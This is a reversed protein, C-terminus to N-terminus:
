LWPSDSWGADRRGKMQSQGRQEGRVRLRHVDVLGEVVDDAVLALGACGAAAAAGTALALGRGALVVVGGSRSSSGRGSSGAGGRETVHVDAVLDDDATEGGVDVVGLNLHAGGGEGRRRTRREGRDVSGCSSNVVM